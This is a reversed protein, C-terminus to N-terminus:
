DWLKRLADSLVFNVKFNVHEEWNSMEFNEMDVSASTWILDNFFTLGAIGFTANKNEDIGAVFGGFGVPKKGDPLRYGWLTGMCVNMSDPGEGVAACDKMAWDSEWGFGEAHVMGVTLLSFLLVILITKM